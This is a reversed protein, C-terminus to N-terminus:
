VFELQGKHKLLIDSMIDNYKMFRCDYKMCECKDILSIMEEHRPGYWIDHFDDTYINGIKHRGQNKRHRYYCCIWIDGNPDITPWLPNLWCGGKMQYQEMSTGLNSTVHLDPYADCMKRIITNAVHMDQSSLESPVNRIPKFQLSDVGINQATRFAWAIDDVNNEDVTFKYGIMCDSGVEDRFRIADEMNDCVMNFHDCGKYRNYVERSGAEMSFRVYSCNNIVDEMLLGSVMTGNTLLGFRLDLEERLRLTSGLNPHLTPEGGGCFDIAECGFIAMTRVVDELGEMVKNTSNLESYDCGICRQNCGYIPYIDAFRPPAMEGKMLIDRAERYKTLIRYKMMDFVENM